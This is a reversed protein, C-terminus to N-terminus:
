KILKLEKIDKPRNLQKKLAILDEKTQIPINEIYEKNNSYYSCSFNIIDNIFFVSRDEENIIEFTCDYNKLLHEYYKKDVSIDIDKTYEKFGYLVMAAGSIVLYKHNDLNYENLIKIIDDKFLKNEFCLKINTKEIYKKINDIDDLHMLYVDVGNMSLRKLVDFHKNFDLHAQNQNISIDTYLETGLNIFSYFPELTKTDGTYVINKGEINMQFGYCDLKNTHETKIFNIDPNDKIEYGEKPVGGINIRTELNQCKSYITIKKNLVHYCYLILQNLSGVHDDHLHTIIVEIKDKNKLFNNEKDMLHLKNFITMGCDILLLYNDSTYYASNNYRGYGSDYGLFLLKKM